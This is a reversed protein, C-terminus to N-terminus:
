EYEYRDCHRVVNGECIVKQVWVVMLLVMMMMLWMTSTVLRSCM